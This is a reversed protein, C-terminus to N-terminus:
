NEIIGEFIWCWLLFFLVDIKRIFVYGVFEVLWAGLDFSLRGEENDLVYFIFVNYFEIELM